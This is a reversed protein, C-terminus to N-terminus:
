RVTTTERETEAAVPKRVFRGTPERRVEAEGLDQQYTERAFATAIVTILAMVTMYIAVYTPKDDAAALLAVAILPAFGGAFVSALQYGISAGTYRVRTGFLESFYAAQPGYMLDHGVNVGLVIALWILVPEKTDVLAFFPFAFLLSFVAGCMYLKKRGVRDSLMGYLPITLLGIAAAIIVGTLMTNKELKLAEEGYALVFVTLVYFTGNEAIRMGMATLVDRKHEKVVDVIPKESETGSDKIEQFAPSEM